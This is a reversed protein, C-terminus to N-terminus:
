NNNIKVSKVYLAKSTTQTYEITVDGALLEGNKTTFTYETNTTTISTSEGIQVDGVKVVFSASVSSAGSTSIKVSNVGKATANNCYKEYSLGLKLSKFPKSSSGFQQGRAAEYGFYGGDGSVTWTMGDLVKSSPSESFVSNTFTYSYSKGASISPATTENFTAEVTVDYEPMLFTNNDSVEVSTEPYGTKYVNWSGFEYGTAPTATLTVTEGAAVATPNAVVTGHQIGSSVTVNYKQVFAAQNVTIVVDEAGEASLTVESSRSQSDANNTVVLVLKENSISASTIWTCGDAISASIEGTLYANPSVTIEDTTNGECDFNLENGSVTIVPTRVCTSEDVFLKFNTVYSSQLKGYCSIVTGNLCMIGAKSNTANTISVNGDNTIEVNWICHNDTKAEEFNELNNTGTVATGTASLYYGELGDSYIQKILYGTSSSEFKFPYAALANDVSIENDDNVTVEVTTRNKTYAGQPNTNQASMAYYKDSSPAVILYNAGPCFDSPSTVLSYVTPPVIKEEEADVLSFNFYTFKDLAFTLSNGTISKTYIYQDTTVKVSFDGTEVPFTLFYVDFSDNTLSRGAGYRLNISHSQVGNDTDYETVSCNDYNPKLRGALCNSATFEVEKVVENTGKFGGLIMKNVAVARGFKMSVSEPAEDVPETTQGILVDAKPDFGTASPTQISPLVPNGTKSVSSAIAAHYSYTQPQTSPAFTASLTATKGGDAIAINVDSGKEANEWITCQEATTGTWVFSSISEGEVIATKTDIGNSVVSVIHSNDVSNNSEIEKQCGIVAM